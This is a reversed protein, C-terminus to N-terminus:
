VSVRDFGEHLQTSFRTSVRPVIVAVSFYHFFYNVFASADVFVAKYWGVLSGKRGSALAHLRPQKVLSTDPPRTRWNAGLM